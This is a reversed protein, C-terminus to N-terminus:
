RDELAQRAAGIALGATRSVHQRDKMPFFDYPDIGRVEGAIQVAFQGPDFAEIRRVGSQSNRFGDWLAEPSNGLPTLCGFGSIVIKDTRPSHLSTLAM